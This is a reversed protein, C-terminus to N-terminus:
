EDPIVCGTSFDVGGCVAHGKRTKAIRQLVADRFIASTTPLITDSFTRAWVRNAEDLTLLFFQRRGQDRELYYKAEDVRWAGLEHIKSIRLETPRADTPVFLRCLHYTPPRGEAERWYIAAERINPNTTPAFFHQMFGDFVEMPSIRLDRAGGGSAAINSEARLKKLDGPLIERFYALKPAQEVIM